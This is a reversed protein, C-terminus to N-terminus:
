KKMMSHIKHHCTSCVLICKHIENVIEKNSHHEVGKSNVYFSKLEPEVHHFHFMKSNDNFEKGCLSCGNVKLQSLIRNYFNRKIERYKEPNEKKWRASNVKVHERYEPDNKYKEKQWRAAAKKVRERFEPNNYYHEKHWKISNAKARERFEQNNQYKQKHWKLTCIKCASTVGYKGSKKKHFEGLPKTESCKTCKKEIIKM